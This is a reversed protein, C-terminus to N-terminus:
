NNTGFRVTFLTADTEDTFAIQFEDGTHCLLARGVCEAELWEQVQEVVKVRLKGNASGIILLDLPMDRVHEYGEPRAMTEFEVTDYHDRVLVSM